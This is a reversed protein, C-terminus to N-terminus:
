KMVANEKKKKLIRAENLWGSGNKRQHQSLDHTFRPKERKMKNKMKPPFNTRAFKKWGGITPDIDVQDAEDKGIHEELIERFSLPKYDKTAHIIEGKDVFLLSYEKLSFKEARINDDKKNKWLDAWEIKVWRKLEKAHHLSKKM